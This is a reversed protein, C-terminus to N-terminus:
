ADLPGSSFTTIGLCLKCWMTRTFASHLFPAYTLTRGSSLFRGQQIYSFLHPDTRAPDHVLITTLEDIDGLVRADQSSPPEPEPDEKRRGVRKGWGGDVRVIAEVDWRCFVRSTTRGISSTNM